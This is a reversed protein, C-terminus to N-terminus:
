RSRKKSDQALRDARAADPDAEPWRNLVYERLDRRETDDGLGARRFDAGSLYLAMGYPLYARDLGLGDATVRVEAPKYSERAGYRAELAPLLKKAYARVALWRLLSSIM